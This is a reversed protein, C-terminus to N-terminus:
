RNRFSWGLAAEIKRRYETDIQAPTREVYEKAHDRVTGQLGRLYEVVEEVSPANDKSKFRPGLATWIAAGLGHADAWASL